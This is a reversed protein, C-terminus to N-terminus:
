SPRRHRNFWAAVLAIGVAAVALALPLSGGSILLLAAALIPLAFLLAPSLEPLPAANPMRPASTAEDDSSTSRGVRQAEDGEFVAPPLPAGPVPRERAEALYATRWDYSPDLKSRFLHFAARQVYAPHAVSLATLARMDEPTFGVGSGDLYAEVLLNVETPAFAGLKITVFRESLLPAPGDLAAVIMLAGSRAMRALTELLVDGWGAAVAADADDLCVITPADDALLAVELAVPTDGRQGLARVLTAYVEAASTAGALDLYFARLDERELNVAAADAIHTLLTSKGIGPSGVILVPRKSQIADFILSLESWRGAFRQPDTIRGREVFPNDTM